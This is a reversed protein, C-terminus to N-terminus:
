SCVYQLVIVVLWSICCFRGAIASTPNLWSDTFQSGIYYQLVVFEDDRTVFLYQKNLNKETSGTAAYAMAQELEEGELNTDLIQYQKDLVLYSCGVPLTVEAWDPAAAIVPAIERVSQESYDAYTTIGLTNSLVLLGFPIAVAAALGALLM